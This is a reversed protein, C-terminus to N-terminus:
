PTGGTSPVPPPPPPPPLRRAPAGFHEDWKVGATVHMLVALVLISAITITLGTYGHFFFAYSFLVLFLVQAPAVVGFTFRGGLVRWVYSVVLLVSVGASAGFAPLVPLHDALYSFLLHFAFFGAAIFFYHMPHLNRDRMVGIIVVVAIFFLLGVPAFFALRSAVPGASLKDPMEVGAAFGSILSGFQWTLVTGGNGGTEKKSPSITRPPFNVRAFDTSVVLKCNKINAVGEAFKYQWTELGRTEYHVHLTARQGPQLQVRGQVLPQNGMPLFPTGNLTLAFDEYVADTAPLAFSAGLRVPRDTAVNVAYDADFSVCYCRYWLLGKRRLDLKLNVTINNADALVAEPTEVTRAHRGRGSQQRRYVTFSPGVQTLPQGWLGQVQQRLNQNAESTRRTVSGGLIAWAISTGVFILFVLALRSGNMM